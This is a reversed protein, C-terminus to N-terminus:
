FRYTRGPPNQRLYKKLRLPVDTCIYDAGLYLALLSDAVKTGPWLNVNIQNAHAMKVGRRPTRDLGAALRKVGLQKCLKITQETCGEGTILGLVAEPYKAHLYKHPRHDFSTLSWNADKPMVAKCQTYIKTCYEALRDEDYLYAGTERDKDDTKMEFEVYLNPKDKFFDLLDELFLIPNGQKTKLKRLQRATMKEITGDVGFIRKLSADHSIVLVGDLTMRVDTEFSNIGSEYSHKFAALVNEDQETGGGRHALIIAPNQAFIVITMVLSALMIITRKM